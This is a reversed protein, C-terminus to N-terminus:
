TQTQNGHIESCGSDVPTAVEQKKGDTKQAIVHSLSMRAHCYDYCRTTHSERHSSILSFFM